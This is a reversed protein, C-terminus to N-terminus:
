EASWQVDYEPAANRGNKACLQGIIYVDKNVLITSLLFVVVACWAWIVFNV